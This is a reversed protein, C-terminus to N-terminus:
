AKLNLDNSYPNKSPFQFAIPGDPEGHLFQHVFSDRSNMMEGVDGQAVVVGDHIFYVYDVIKLSESLDYTVVVSTTGLADNLKRILNAITNLSIPDLGAFPEDYIFTFYTFTQGFNSTPAICKKRYYAVAAPNADQELATIASNILCFDM